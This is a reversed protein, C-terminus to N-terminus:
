RRGPGRLVTVAVNAALQGAAIGSVVCYFGVMAWAAIEPMTLEALPKDKTAAIVPLQDRIPALWLRVPAPFKTVDLETRM